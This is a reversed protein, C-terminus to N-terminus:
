DRLVSPGSPESDKRLCKSWCFQHSKMDWIRAIAKMRMWIFFNYFLRYSRGHDPGTRGKRWRRQDERTWEMRAVNTIKNKSGKVTEPVKGQRLFSAELVRWIRHLLEEGGSSDVVLGGGVSVADQQRSFWPTQDSPPHYAPHSGSHHNSSDQCWLQSNNVWALGVGTQQAPAPACNTRTGDWYPLTYCQQGGVTTVLIRQASVIHSSSQESLAWLLETLHASFNDM